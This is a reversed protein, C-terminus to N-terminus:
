TQKQKSEFRAPNSMWSCFLTLAILEIIVTTYITGKSEFFEFPALLLAIVGILLPVAMPRAFNLTWGIGIRKPVIVRPDKRNFYFIYLYYNGASQLPDNNMIM